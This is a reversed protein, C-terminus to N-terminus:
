ARLPNYFPAHQIVQQQLIMPHFDDQPLIMLPAAAVVMMAWEIHIASCIRENMICM